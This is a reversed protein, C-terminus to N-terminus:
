QSALHKDLFAAMRPYADRKNKLKRLGHGEDAYVLLEVPLNRARMAEAVQEAEHLPVRPDNKGHILMLPAKIREIKHLPSIRRLLERDADLSGYEAERIKRRWPGTKELFTEFNAIGVVCVGAAFLDPYETLGALVMFGGYSGGLLAIRRADIQPLNKAIFAVADAMDRVSDMRKGVDDLALYQKGYGASGRVNPAFIAYGRNLFYQFLYSFDPTEQGEPGGHLYMICPAKEGAALNKPLYVFAPVVLNDQTPYTVLRPAVFSEVPVGGTSSLTLRRTQGTKTEVVYIDAPSTANSYTLALFDGRTSFHANRVVGEPLQPPPLLDMLNRKNIKAVVMKTFGHMNLAYMMHTGTRSFTLLSTDWRGADLYNLKMQRVDYFAQKAFDSGLNGVLYFGEASKPGVPWRVHSYTAWGAHPTLLEPATDPTLLDVLYLNNNFNSEVESIVLKEGSPSFALAELYADKQMVLRSERTALDMVYVDFFATNRRNSSYAITKGDRSWAGLDFIFEDPGTIQEIRHGHADMAFLQRREDGGAAKGLLIFNEDTPSPIAYDVADDFFTLQTPYGGERAIKWVQNTGTINTLYVLSESDALWRADYAQRIQLYADLPYPAGHVVEGTQAAAWAMGALLFILIAAITARRM